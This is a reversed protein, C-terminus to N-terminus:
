GYRRKLVRLLEDLTKCIKGQRCAYIIWPHAVIREDETLLFVPRHKIVGTYFIENCTGISIEKLYAVTFDTRDIFKLDRIVISKSKLNCKKIVEFYDIQKGQAEIEDALNIHKWKSKGDTEYFPNKTEIGIANIKPIMVDKVFKRHNFTHALYCKVQAKVM